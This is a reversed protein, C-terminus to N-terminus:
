ADVVMVDGVLDGSICKAEHHYILNIKKLRFQIIKRREPCALTYSHHSQNNVLMLKCEPM